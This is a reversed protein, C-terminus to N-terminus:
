SSKKIRVWDRKIWSEIREEDREYARKKPKQTSWGLHHRLFQSMYVPNYKVGFLRRILTAVRRCTWLDTSFGHARPGKLLEEELRTKQDDTLKSTRGPHPTSELAEKGGQEYRRLWRQVTRRDRGVMDAIETPGRGERRLEIARERIRKLEAATGKPRMVVIM